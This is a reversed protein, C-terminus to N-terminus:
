PIILHILERSRKKTKYKIKGLDKMRVRSVNMIEFDDEREMGAKCM